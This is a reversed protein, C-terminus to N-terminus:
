SSVKPNYEGCDETVFGFDLAYRGAILYAFGGACGQSYKSCSIM